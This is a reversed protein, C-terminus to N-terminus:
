LVLISCGIGTAARDLAYTKGEQNSPDRTLGGFSNSHNIIAYFYKNQLPLIYHHNKISVTWETESIRM